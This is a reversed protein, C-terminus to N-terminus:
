RENVSIVLLWWREERLPLIGLAADAVELPWGMPTVGGVEDLEGPVLSLLLVMGGMEPCPGGDDVGPPGQGGLLPLPLPLLLPEPWCGHQSDPRGTRVSGM